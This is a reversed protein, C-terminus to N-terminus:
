PIITAELSEEDDEITLGPAYEIEKRIQIALPYGTDWEDDLGFCYWCAAEADAEKQMPHRKRKEEIIM